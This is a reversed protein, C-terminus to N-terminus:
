INSGANRYKLGSGVANAEEKATFGVKLEIKPTSSAGNWAVGPAMYDTDGHQAAGGTEDASDVHLDRIGAELFSYCSFYIIIFYNIKRVISERRRPM